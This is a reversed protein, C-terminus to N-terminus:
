REECCNRSVALGERRRTGAVRNGAKMPVIARESEEIGTGRGKTEKPRRYRPHVWKSRPTPPHAEGAPIQIAAGAQRSMGRLRRPRGPEQPIWVRAHGARLSRRPQRCWAMATSGINGEPKMVVDARAFRM